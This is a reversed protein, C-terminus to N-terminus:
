CHLVATGKFILIGMICTHTCTCQEGIFCMHLISQGLGPSESTYKEHLLKISSKQILILRAGNMYVGACLLHTLALLVIPDTLGM